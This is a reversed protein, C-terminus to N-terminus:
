RISRTAPLSQDVGWDSWLANECECKNLHKYTKPCLHSKKYELLVLSQWNKRWLSIFGRPTIAKWLSQRGSSKWLAKILQPFFLLKAHNENINKRYIWTFISLTERALLGQWHRRSRGQKHVCHLHRPIYLFSWMWPSGESAFLSLFMPALSGSNM